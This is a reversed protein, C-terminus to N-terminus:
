LLHKCSVPVFFQKSRYSTMGVLPGIPISSYPSFKWKSRDNFSEWPSTCSKEPSTCFNDPSTRVEGCRGEFDPWTFFMQVVSLFADGVDCRWSSHYIKWANVPKSMLNENSTKPNKSGTVSVTIIIKRFLLDFMNIICLNAKV